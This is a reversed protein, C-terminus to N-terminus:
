WTIRWVSKERKALLSTLPITWEVTRASVLKRTVWEPTETGSIAKPATVAVTVASQALLSALREGYVAAVLERYATETSAEGTFLPALLLDKYERTGEPLVGVLAAASEPTVVLEFLGPKVTLASTLGPPVKSATGEVQFTLGDASKAQVSQFGAETFAAALAAESFLRGGGWLESLGSLVEATTTTTSSTVAMTVGGKEDVTVAARPSCACLSIALLSLVVVVIKARVLPVVFAPKKLTV